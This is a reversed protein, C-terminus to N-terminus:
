KLLCFRPRSSALSRRVLVHRPLSGSRILFDLRAEWLLFLDLEDRSGQKAYVFSLSNSYALSRDILYTDYPEMVAQRAHSVDLIWIYSSGSVRRKSWYLAPPRDKWIVSVCLLTFSTMGSTPPSKSRSSLTMATSGSPDVTM